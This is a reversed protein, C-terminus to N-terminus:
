TFICRQRYRTSSAVLDQHVIYKIKCLTHYILKPLAHEVFFGFKKHVEYDLENCLYYHEETLRSTFVNECTINFDM